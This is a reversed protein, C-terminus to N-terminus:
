GALLSSDDLHWRGGQLLHVDTCHLWPFQCHLHCQEATRYRPEAMPNQYTLNPCHLGIVCNIVHACGDSALKCDSVSRVGPRLLAELSSQSNAFDALLRVLLSLLLSVRYNQYIQPLRAATFIVNNFEYLIGIHVKSVYGTFSHNYSDQVPVVNM